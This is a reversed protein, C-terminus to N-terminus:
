LEIYVFSRHWRCGKIYTREYMECIRHFGGLREDVLTVNGVDIYDDAKPMCPEDYRLRNALIISSDQSFPQIDHFGYFLGESVSIPNISYDRKRPLLDFAAQYLNRIGKKLRPNSKVLDYIGREIFNM